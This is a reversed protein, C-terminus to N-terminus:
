APMRAKMHNGGIHCSLSESALTRGDQRTLNPRGGDMRPGLTPEGCGLGSTSMRFHQVGTTHVAFQRVKPVLVVVVVTFALRGHDAVRHDMYRLIWYRSTASLGGFCRLYHRGGFELAGSDQNGLGIVHPIINHPHAWRSTGRPRTSLIASTGPAPRLEVTRPLHRSRGQVLVSFPM